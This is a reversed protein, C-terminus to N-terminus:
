PNIGTKILLYYEDHIYVSKQHIMRDM